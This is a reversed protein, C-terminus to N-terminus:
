CRALQARSALLFRTCRPIHQELIDTQMNSRGSVLRKSCPCGQDTGHLRLPRQMTQLVRQCGQLLIHVAVQRRPILLAAFCHLLQIRRLGRSCRPARSAATAAPEPRKAAAGPAFVFNARPGPESGPDFGPSRRCCVNPDSHGLASKLSPKFDPDPESHLTNQSM